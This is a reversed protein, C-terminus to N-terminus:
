RGHVRPRRRATRTVRRRSRSLGERDRRRGDRRHTRPPRISRPDLESPLRRPAGASPISVEARRWRSVFQNPILVAEFASRREPAPTRSRRRGGPLAGTETRVPVPAGRWSSHFSFGRLRPAEGSLLAHRSAHREVRGAEAVAHTHGMPSSTRAPVGPHGYGVQRQSRPEIGGDGV